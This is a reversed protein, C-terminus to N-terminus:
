LQGKTEIGEAVVVLDLAHALQITAAVISLSRRDRAIREVFSRDIKLYDLPFAQLYSLSSFGTGFDDLGIHIGLNRLDTLSSVASNSTQLLVHETVEISLHRGDLQLDSLLVALRSAF